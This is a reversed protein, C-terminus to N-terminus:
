GPRSAAGHGRRRGRQGYRREKHGVHGEASVVGGGVTGDVMGDAEELFGAHGGHLDFASGDAGVEDVPEGAGLDGDEGM